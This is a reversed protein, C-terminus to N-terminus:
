EEKIVDFFSETHNVLEAKYSVADASIQVRYREEKAM